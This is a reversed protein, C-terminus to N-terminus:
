RRSETGRHSSVYRGLPPRGVSASTLSQFGNFLGAYTWISRRRSSQVPWKARGSMMMCPPASGMTPVPSPLRLIQQGHIVDGAHPVASRLEVAQDGRLDVGQFGHDIILLAIPATSRGRGGEDPDVRALRDRTGTVAKTEVVQRVMAIVVVMVILVCGVVSRGGDTSRWQQLPLGRTATSSSHSSATAACSATRPDQRSREGITAREERLCASCSCVLRFWQPQFWSGPCPAEWLSCCTM